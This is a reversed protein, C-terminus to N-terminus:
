RLLGLQGSKDKSKRLISEYKQSMLHSQVQTIFDMIVVVVILLSTGGFYFSVNWISRLMDPLLAVTALYAAGLLTLRSMVKDIYEATNKGPRLGPVLAGSRKLNDATENPNFVMAAYFFSFFFIASVLFLVYLPQGPSLWFMIQNFLEYKSSATYFNAITTPFALLSFAFIPPIVGTLNLKLPLHSVRAAYLKNGQQRKAYNISIQRQAREVFVIFALISIVAAVLIIFSIPQIQGQKLQTLIQGVGSPLRSVIGSFIILSIGNGIGKETMQEGLWMLFLVGTTLTVSTTIYFPIGDYNVAGQAILMKAIGTSQFLAFVLTAYRTYQTIKRRGLEGEKKLQELSPLSVSLLQMIISATIYPFVGLAFLSMRSLAGGSFMNFMDLVGGKHKGFLTTLKIIDVGPIPIHAGLRFIVLGFLVFLLRKKLENFGAKSFNPMQQAITNAGNAM